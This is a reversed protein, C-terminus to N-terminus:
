EEAGEGEFLAATGPDPADFDEALYTVRLARAPRRITKARPLPVLMARPVGNKSIIIEEGRAADEVLSSLHTKAEYLNVSKRGPKGM